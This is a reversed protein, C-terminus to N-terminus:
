NQHRGGAPFTEAVYGREPVLKLQLTEGAFLNVTFVTALGFTVSNNEHRWDARRPFTTLPVDFTQLLTTLRRSRSPPNKRDGHGTFGFYWFTHRDGAITHGASFLLSFHENVNYSGGLNLAAFGKDNDADQGQAFLEGGLTLHPWFDRQVLWGGFPYDAPRARFEAGRRRRRLNDM